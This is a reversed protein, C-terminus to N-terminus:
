QPKQAAKKEDTAAKKEDTLSFEKKWAHKTWTGDSTWVRIIEGDRKLRIVLGKINLGDKSYEGIAVLKTDNQTVAPSEIKVIQTKSAELEVDITCPDVPTAKGGDSMMFIYEVQATINSKGLWRITCEYSNQRTKDVISSGYDTKFQTDKKSNQKMIKATLSVPNISSRKMDDGTQAYCLSGILLTTFTMTITKM